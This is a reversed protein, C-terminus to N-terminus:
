ILPEAPSPLETGVGPCWGGVGAGHEGPFHCLSLPQYSSHSLQSSTSQYLRTSWGQVGAVRNHPAGCPSLLLPLCLGMLAWLVVCLSICRNSSAHMYVFTSRVEGSVGTRSDSLTGCLTTLLPQPFCLPLLAGRGRGLAGSRGDALANCLSFLLWHSSSPIGLDHQVWFVCCRIRM